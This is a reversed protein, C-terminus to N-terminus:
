VISFTECFIDEVSKLYQSLDCLRRTIMSCESWRCTGADRANGM